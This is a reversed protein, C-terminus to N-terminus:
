KRLYSPMFLAIPQGTRENTAEIEFAVEATGSLHYLPDSVMLGLTNQGETVKVGTLTHNFM